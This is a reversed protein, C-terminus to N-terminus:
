VHDHELRAEDRERVSYKCVASGVIILFCAVWLNQTLAIGLFVASFLMVILPNFYVLSTVLILDGRKMAMDWFLYGLFTPVIALFLLEGVARWGWTSEEPFLVSVVFLLLGTALIFISVASSSAESALKRTLNSYLAWSIAAVLALLYPWVNAQVNNAFASWLLGGSPISATFAGASALLIGALLWPGAQNKLIVISLLLSLSPWLYNILGVEIVQQRTSALGIALYISVNNLVFFAGCIWLYSSSLSFLERRQEQNNFLAASAIMGGILCFLSTSRLFGIQESLDRAFAFATSWFLIALVGLLTRFTKNSTIM